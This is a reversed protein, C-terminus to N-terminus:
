EAKEQYLPPRLKPIGTGTEEEEILEIRPIITWVGDTNGHAHISKIRVLQGVQMGSREIAEKKTKCEKVLLYM